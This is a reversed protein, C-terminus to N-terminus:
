ILSHNAIVQYSRASNYQPLPGLSQWCISLVVEIVHMTGTIKEHVLGSRIAEYMITATIM